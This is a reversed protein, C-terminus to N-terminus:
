WEGICASHSRVPVYCSVSRRNRNHYSQINDRDNGDCLLMMIKQRQRYHHDSLGVAQPLKVAFRNLREGIGSAENASCIDIEDAESREGIEAIDHEHADCDAKTGDTLQPAFLPSQHQYSNIEEAVGRQEDIKPSHVWLYDQPSQRDHRGQDQDPCVANGLDALGRHTNLTAGFQSLGVPGKKLDM